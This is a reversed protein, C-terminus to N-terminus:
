CAKPSIYVLVLVTITLCVLLRLAKAWRGNGM